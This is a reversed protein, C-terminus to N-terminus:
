IQQVPPPLDIHSLNSHSKYLYLAFLIIEEHIVTRNCLLVKPVPASPELVNVDSGDEQSWKEIPNIQLDMYQKVSRNENLGNSYANLFVFSFFLILMFSSIYHQQKLQRNIRDIVFNFSPSPPHKPFM